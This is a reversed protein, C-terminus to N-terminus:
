AKRRQPISEHIQTYDTYSSMVFVTLLLLLQLLNNFIVYKKATTVRLWM